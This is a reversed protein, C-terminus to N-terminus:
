TIPVERMILDSHGAWGFPETMLEPMQELVRDFLTGLANWDETEILLYVSNTAGMEHILTRVDFGSDRIARGFDNLKELAGGITQDADLSFELLAVYTRPEEPTPTAEQAGAPLAAAFALALTALGTAFRSIM